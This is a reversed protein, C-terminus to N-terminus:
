QWFPKGPLDPLNTKGGKPSNLVPEPWDAFIMLNGIRAALAAVDAVAVASAEAEAEAEARLASGIMRGAIVVEVFLLRGVELLIM